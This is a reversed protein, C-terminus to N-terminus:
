IKRSIILQQFTIFQKILLQTLMAKQVKNQLNMLLM